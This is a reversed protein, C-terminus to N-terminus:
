ADAATRVLSVELDRRVDEIGRQHDHCTDNCHVETHRLECVTATRVTGTKNFEKVNKSFPWMM